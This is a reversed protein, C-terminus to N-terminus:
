FVSYKLNDALPNIITKTYSNQIYQFINHSKINDWLHFDANYNHFIHILESKFFIKLISKVKLTRIIIGFKKSVKRKLFREQFINLLDIIFKDQDNFINIRFYNDKSIM